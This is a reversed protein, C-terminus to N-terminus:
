ARKSRNKIAVDQQAKQQKTKEDQSHAEMMAEKYDLGELFDYLASTNYFEDLEYLTALNPEYSSYVKFIDWDQSFNKDM